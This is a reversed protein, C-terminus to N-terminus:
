WAAITGKNQDDRHKARVQRTWGCVCERAKRREGKNRGELIKTM